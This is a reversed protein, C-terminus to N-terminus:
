AGDSSIRVVDDPHENDRRSYGAGWERELERQHAQTGRAEIFAKASYRVAPAADHWEGLPSRAGVGPVGEHASAGPPTTM